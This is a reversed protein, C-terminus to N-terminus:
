PKSLFVEAFFLTLEKISLNMLIILGLLGCARCCSRRQSGQGSVNIRLVRVAITDAAVIAAGVAPINGKFM